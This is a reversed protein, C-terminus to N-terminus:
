GEGLLYYIKTNKKVYNCYAVYAEKPTNFYGLHIKKGQFSIQARWKQMPTHWCVGRYGSQNTSMLKTNRMNESRTAERLNEIKNNLPNRDIHDIEKPLYGKHYLFILRHIKYTKNKIRVALYGASISGAKQGIKIRWAPSIKYYLHGEGYEFANHLYNYLEQTKM